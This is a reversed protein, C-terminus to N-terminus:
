HLAGASGGRRDAAVRVASLLERPTADKLVYGTAGAELADRIRAPHPFATLIVVQSPPALAAIRRTATVADIRPMALDMLVVDPRLRVTAAVGETGEAATAVVEIGDAGDLLRKLGTRLVPHDHCLLVRINAATM